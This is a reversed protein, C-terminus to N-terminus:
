KKVGVERLIVDFEKLERQVQAEADAASTPHPVVGTKAIADQVEPSEYAKFFAARFKEMIAPDVKAPAFLGFWVSYANGFGQEAVTQVDPYAPLRVPLLAALPKVEGKEAYDRIYPTSVTIADATGQTLLLANLDQYGTEKWAFGGIKAINMAIVTPVAGLGWHGLRLGPHTKAYESLEKLNNYPADGKVVLMFPTSWCMGLPKFDAATYPTKGMVIQSVMPGVAMVGFTYGDPRAGALDKGGLVGGGGPKNIVKVPQGLEKQLVPGMVNLIITTPDNGPPFPVILQIPKSPWQAAHSALPAAVVAAAAFLGLRLHKLSM